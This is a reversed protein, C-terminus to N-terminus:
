FRCSLLKCPAKGNGAGGSIDIAPGTRQPIRILNEWPQEWACAAGIVSRKGLEFWGRGDVAQSSPGRKRRQEVVECVHLDRNRVAPGYRRTLFRGGPGLVPPSHPIDGLLCSCRAFPNKRDKSVYVSPRTLAATAARKRGRRWPWSRPSEDCGYGNGHYNFYRDHYKNPDGEDYDSM